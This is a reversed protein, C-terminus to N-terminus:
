YIPVLANNVIEDNNGLSNNVGRGNFVNIISIIKKIFTIYPKSSSVTNKNVVSHETM